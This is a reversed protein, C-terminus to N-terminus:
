NRRMATIYAAVVQACSGAGVEVYPALTAIVSGWGTASSYTAQLTVSGAPTKASNSDMINSTDAVGRLTTGTGAAQVGAKNHVIFLHWCNDAVSALSHNYTAVDSSTAQTGSADPQGSQKAGTYSCGHGRATISESFSIVINNAGTAPNILYWLSVWRGPGIGDQRIAGIKTLAVGNYTVGTCVEAVGNKEIMGVLLVLNDGTCTHSFTLSTGAPNLVGVSVSDYAISSSGPTYYITIRIYDVYVDANNATAQCSLVVGFDADKVMAVTPSANWLETAGGYTRITLSTDWNGAVAKNDGVLAGNADLLQVRYDKVTEGADNYGAIEVKIGNITADDPIAAFPFGQAKLRYTIDDTDYNAATVYAYTVDDAGINTPSNWGSVSEPAVSETTMVTPYQYGTDAM